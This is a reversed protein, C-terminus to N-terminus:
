KQVFAKHLQIINNHDLKQLADAERYIETIESAHSLYNSVDMFKIAVKDGTEKDEALYVKGFGGEGLVEKLDYDSLVSNYNFDEGKPALYIVDDRSLMALDAEFIEVGEKDFLRADESYAKGMGEWMLKKLSNLNYVTGYEIDLKRDGDNSFGWGNIRIILREPLSEM